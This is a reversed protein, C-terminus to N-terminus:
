FRRLTPELGVPPVSEVFLRPRTNGAAAKENYGMQRMYTDDMLEEPTTDLFNATNVLDPVSWPTKGALKVSVTSRKVGLYNALDVQSRGAAALRIKVNFSITEEVQKADLGLRPAPATATM